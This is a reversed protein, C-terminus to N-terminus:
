ARSEPATSAALVEPYLLCRAAHGPAVEAMAPRVVDCLGAVARPCRPHFACGPLEALAPPVSGRMAPLPRRPGRRSGLRPVSGLLGQTYPHMPADFLAETTAEEVVQGLYMVAVRSTTRAVV